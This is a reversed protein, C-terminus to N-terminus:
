WHQLWRPEALLTMRENVPFVRPYTGEGAEQGAKIALLARELDALDSKALAPVGPAKDRHAGYVVLAEPMAQLLNRTAQLYEGLNSNPLFAYLPGPYLYDGSFLMQKHSDYLSISDTTHGPTHVVRLQRGGLDITSDVPLWEDVQLAVAMVGEGAGLHEGWTPTLVNDPARDRLYPLDVVGVHDFTVQNGIHDFHFHSPIFTIPLATLLEAVARIDRYGPGADFLIARDTGTLLYSFNQQHYRPEGIAYTLEDIQHVLFYDDIWQAEPDEQVPASLEPPGDGVFVYEFLLLHRQWVAMGCLVAVVVVLLVIRNKM